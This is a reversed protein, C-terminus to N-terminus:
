NCFARSRNIHEQALAIAKEMNQLPTNQEITDPDIARYEAMFKAIPNLRQEWGSIEPCVNMLNTEDLIGDAMISQANAEMEGTLNRLDDYHDPWALWLKHEAENIAAPTLRPKSTATPRLRQMDSPTVTVRLYQARATAVSSKARATATAIVERYPQTPEEQDNGGGMCAGIVILLVLSLLIIGPIIRKSCSKGEPVPPINLQRQPRGSKEFLM